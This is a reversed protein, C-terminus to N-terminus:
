GQMLIILFVFLSVLLTTKEVWYRRNIIRPDYILYSQLELMDTDEETYKPKLPNLCYYKGISVKGNNLHVDKITM